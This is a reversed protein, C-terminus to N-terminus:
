WRPGADKPGNSVSRWVRSIPAQGTLVVVRTEPGGVKHITDCDDVSAAM